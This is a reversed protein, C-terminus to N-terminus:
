RSTREVAATVVVPLCLRFCTGTRGTRVLELRGGAHRALQGSLALGLGAGGPKSSTVPAFAAAQVTAPLGHGTDEVEWEGFGEAVNRLRLTLQGGRPTAAIANDLLNGIVLGGLAAVRGDIAVAQDTDNISTCATLGAAAVADSIRERSADLLEQATITYTTGDRVDQLVGLVENIMTRVRRTTDAAERWAEGQAAGGGASPEEAMFGALGALPNKLGHILHASIAGIAATKTHLLLERNARSLDAAQRRLRAFAWGLVTVLVVVGLGGAWGAIAFLQRDVAVLEARVPAGDIWYRAWGETTEGALNLPVIVELWDGTARALVEGAGALAGDEDHLWATPSKVQADTALAEVWAELPLERASRGDAGFLQIAVVGQLRSSELLAEFVDDITPALGLAEYRAVGIDRQLRAVAAVAEAERQLVQSQLERRVPWAVVGVLALLLLSALVIATWQVQRSSLKAPM